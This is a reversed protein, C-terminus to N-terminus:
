AKKNRPKSARCTSCYTLDMHRHLPHGEGLFAFCVNCKLYSSTYVYEDVAPHIVPPRKLNTYKTHQKYLRALMTYMHFLLAVLPNLYKRMIYIEHHSKRVYADLYNLQISFRSLLQLACLSLM